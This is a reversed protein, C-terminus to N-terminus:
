NIAGGHAPVLPEPRITRPPDERHRHKFWLNFPILAVVRVVVFALVLPVADFGKYSHALVGLALVPNGLAAAYAVSVREDLSGPTAIYGLVTAGIPILLAAVFARFGLSRLAPGMKVLVVVAVVVLGLYFLATTIKALWAAVRPWLRIIVRGLAYPVFVLPLLVAAVDRPGFKLDLPTLRKLVAAWLPLMFLATLAAAILVLLSTRGHGYKTRMKSVIMPAGPCVALVVLTGQETPLPRVTLVLAVALVPVAIWVVLLAFALVRWRNPIDRILATPTRLGVSLMLMALAHAALFHAVTELM